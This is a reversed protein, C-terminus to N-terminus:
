YQFFTNVIGINYQYTIFNSKKSPENFDNFFFKFLNKMSASIEQFNRLNPIFNVTLAIGAGIIQLKKNSSEGSEM